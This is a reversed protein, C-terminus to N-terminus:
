VDETEAGEMGRLAKFTYIGSSHGDSFAVGIGYNGISWIRTPAIALPVAAPDLLRAGSMEDRCAACQCAIRLDRSPIVHRTGDGWLISLGAADLDLACPMDADGSAPVPAPQGKGTEITWDFPLAIGGSGAQGDAMVQAIALYAQAAPSDPHSVVLPVGDDGSDVVAPDLPVRGLFPVGLDGAISEGGGQHFIHTVEGCSPCTFGSMNEVVGLIPVEVQEMMRVGRRAIKLSVDQPTSVVIAGTLPFSQALTLQIDGTGPPLDLLLVDLEGWAVQSVFMRLYKTVMPGRLISPQDDDTLMAMSIVKVGHAEPPVVRKDPGMAPPANGPIGLMGPVSPGYIDADVIGVKLGSRALAVALNVTVTSKGVGGKGSSVAIMRRPGTPDTSDSTM